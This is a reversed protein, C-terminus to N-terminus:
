MGGTVNTWTTAVPDYIEATSTVVGGTTTGGAVLVRGDQLVVAIHGSRPVNMSTAASFSGSAAFLEASSSPGSGDNGGTVLIHGDHLLVSAAGSRASSMSGTAVWTGSPVQLSSARLLIGTVMLIAATCLIIPLRKM